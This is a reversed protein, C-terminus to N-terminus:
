ISPHGVKSYQSEETPYGLKAVQSHIAMRGSASGLITIIMTAKRLKPTHGSSNYQEGYKMDSVQEQDNAATGMTTLKSVTYYLNKIVNGDNKDKYKM